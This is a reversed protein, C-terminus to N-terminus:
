GQWGPVWKSTGTVTRPTWPVGLALFSGKSVFNTSLPMRSIGVSFHQATERGVASATVVVEVSRGQPPRRGESPVLAWRPPFGPPHSDMPDFGPYRLDGPRQTLGCTGPAPTERRSPIPSIATLRRLAFRSDLPGTM